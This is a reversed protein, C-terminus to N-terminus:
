SLFLKPAPINEIEKIYNYKFTFEKNKAHKIHCGKM